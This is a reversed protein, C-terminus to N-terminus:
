SAFTAQEAECTMCTMPSSDALLRSIQLHGHKSPDMHVVLPNVYPAVYTYNAKAAALGQAVTFCTTALTRVNHKSELEACAAIGEATSPIKICVRNQPINALGYVKVLRLAHQITAVTDYAKSTM